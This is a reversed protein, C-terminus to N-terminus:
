GEGLIDLGYDYAAHHEARCGRAMEWGECFFVADVTAMAELSKALYALPKNKYKSDDFDKFFTDVVEYGAANLAATAERRVSLIEEETKGNMPQSIMARKSM